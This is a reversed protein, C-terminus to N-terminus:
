VGKSIEIIKNYLEGDDVENAIAILIKNEINDLNIEPGLEFIVTYIKDENNNEAFSFVLRNIERNINKGIGRVTGTYKSREITSKLSLGISNLKKNLRPALKNIDINM